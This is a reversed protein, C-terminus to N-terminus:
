TEAAARPCCTPRLNSSSSVAAASCAPYWLSVLRTKVVVLCTEGDMAGAEELDAHLWAM